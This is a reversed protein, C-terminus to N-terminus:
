PRKRRLARVALETRSTVGLKEMMRSVYNKVTGEALFIQDAIDRNSKGQAVLVLIEDAGQQLGVRVGGAGRDRRVQQGIQRHLPLSAAPDLVLGLPAAKRAPRPM